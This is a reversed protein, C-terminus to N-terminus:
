DRELKERLSTRIEEEQDLIGGYTEHNFRDQIADGVLQRLDPPTLAELQATIDKSGFHEVVDPHKDLFAKHRSDSPKPPATEIDMDMVQDARLAIREIAYDDYLGVADCMATVDDRLTEFMGEGSPDFDGIHLVRTPTGTERVRKTIRKFLNHKSTISDYGGGSSVRVCYPDAIETMLPVMGGAECWVEIIEDQGLQRDLKMNEVWRDVNDMFDDESAFNAGLATVGKDDRIWSFAILYPDQLTAEKAVEADEGQKIMSIRKEEFARRSRGIANGLASYANESKDYGYEAVLRYFIQRVTLPSEWAEYQICVNRAAALVRKTRMSPAYKTFGHQSM